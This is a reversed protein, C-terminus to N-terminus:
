GEVKLHYLEGSATGAVIRPLHVALCEVPQPAYFAGGQKLRVTSGDREAVEGSKDTSAGDGKREEVLELTDVPHFFLPRHHVCWVSQCFPPTSSPAKCHPGYVYFQLRKM